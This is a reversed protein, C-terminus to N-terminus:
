RGRRKGHIGQILADIAPWPPVLQPTQAPGSGVAPFRTVPVPGRFSRWIFFGAAAATSPPAPPNPRLRPARRHAVPGIFFGVVRQNRVHVVEVLNLLPHPIARLDITQELGAVVEVLRAFDEVAGDPASRANPQRDALARPHQVLPRLVLCHLVRRAGNEDPRGSGAVAARRRGCACDTGIM